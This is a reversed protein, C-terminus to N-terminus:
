VEEGDVGRSAHQALLRLLNEHRQARQVADAASQLWYGRGRTECCDHIVGVRGVGKLVHEVGYVLHQVALSVDDRHASGSAVTVVAFSWEHRLLRHIMVLSLGLNSSGCAMM